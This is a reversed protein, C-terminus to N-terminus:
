DRCSAVGVEDTLALGAPVGAPDAHVAEVIAADFLMRVVVNQLTHHSM